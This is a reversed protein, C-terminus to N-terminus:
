YLCLHPCTHTDRAHSVVIVKKKIYKDEMFGFAQVAWLGGGGGGGVGVGVGVCM